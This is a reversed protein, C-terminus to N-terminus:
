VHLVGCEWLLLSVGDHSVFLKEVGSFIRM